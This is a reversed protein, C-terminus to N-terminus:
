PEHVWHVADHPPPVMERPAAQMRESPADTSQDYQPPLGYTVSDHLVWAHAGVVPLQLEGVYLQGHWVQVEPVTFDPVQVGPVVFEPKWRPPENQGYLWGYAWNVCVQWYHDSIRVGEASLGSPNKKM